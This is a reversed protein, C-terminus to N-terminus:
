RRYVIALTSLPQIIIQNDARIAPLARANVDEPSAFYASMTVRNLREVGVSGVGYYIPQTTLPFTFTVNDNADRTSWILGM